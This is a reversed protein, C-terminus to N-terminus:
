ISCSSALSCVALVENYKPRCNLVSVILSLVARVEKTAFVCLIVILMCIGKQVLIANKQSLIM